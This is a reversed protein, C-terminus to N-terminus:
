AQQILCCMLRMPLTWWFVLAKVVSPKGFRLRTGIITLLNRNPPISMIICGIIAILLSTKNFFFNPSWFNLFYFEFYNLGGAKTDYLQAQLNIGGYWWPWFIFVTLLAIIILIVPVVILSYKKAKRMNIKYKKDQIQVYRYREEKVEEYKEDIDVHPRIPKIQEEIDEKEGEKAYKKAVEQCDKCNYYFRDHKDCHKKAL